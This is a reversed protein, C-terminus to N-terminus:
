ATSRVAELYAHELSAADLPGESRWAARGADLVLAADALQAARDLEHTVLLV